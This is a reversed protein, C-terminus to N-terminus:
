DETPIYSLLMIRRQVCDKIHHYRIDIHKSRDHFAPNASLKICSHNDCYIVTPELHSGFLGVLIKRMWIAECAVLSEVMYEAEASSLAVSRQKRSYWSITTSGISFVGGLTSKIDTPSGAWDEVVIQYLNPDAESKSFGFETFYSDIRTYWACPAQKLGYLARKLRCVHSESSFVEFGEPQEFYVEEEIFKNLFVTNVDMQHIHWGMQASLALIM